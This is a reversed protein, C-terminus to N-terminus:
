KKKEEMREIAREEFEKKLKYMGYIYFWVFIFIYIIIIIASSKFGIEDGIIKSGVSIITLLLVMLLITGCYLYINNNKTAMEIRDLQTLKEELIKNM